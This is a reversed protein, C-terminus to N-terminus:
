VRDTHGLRQPRGFRGALEIPDQGFLAREGSRDLALKVPRDQPAKAGPASEGLELARDEHGADRLAPDRFHVPRFRHPSLRPMARRM